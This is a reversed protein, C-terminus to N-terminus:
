IERSLETEFRAKERLKQPEDRFQIVDRQRLSTILSVPFIIEVLDDRFPHTHTYARAHIRERAHM